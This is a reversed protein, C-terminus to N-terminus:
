CLERHFFLLQQLLTMHATDDEQEVNTRAEVVVAHLSAGEELGLTEGIEKAISLLPLQGPVPGGCLQIWYYHLRDKLKSQSSPPPWQEACAQVVEKLPMVKVGCLGLRRTIQQAVEKLNKPPTGCDMVVMDITARTLPYVVDSRRQIHNARRDSARPSRM